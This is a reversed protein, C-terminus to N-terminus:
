NWKYLLASKLFLNRLKGDEIDYSIKSPVFMLVVYSDINISIPDLLSKLYFGTFYGKVLHTFTRDNHLASFLKWTLFRTGLKQCSQLSQCYNEWDRIYSWILRNVESTQFIQSFNNWFICLKVSCFWPQLFQVLWGVFDIENDLSM